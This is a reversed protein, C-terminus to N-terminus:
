KLEVEVKAKGYDASSVWKRTTHGKYTLKVAVAGTPKDNTGVIVLPHGDSM